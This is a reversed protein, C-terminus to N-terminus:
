DVVVKTKKPTLVWVLFWVPAWLGCTVLTLVAHLGHRVGGSKIVKTM